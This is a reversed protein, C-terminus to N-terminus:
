IYIDDPPASGGRGKDCSELSFPVLPFFFRYITLSNSGLSLRVDDVGDKDITDIRTLDESTAGAGDGGGVSTLGDGDCRSAHPGNGTSIDVGNEDGISVCPGDKTGVDVGDEDEITALMGVFSSTGFKAM